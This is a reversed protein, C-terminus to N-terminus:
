LGGLTPAVPLFLNNRYIHIFCQFSVLIEYLFHEVCIKGGTSKGGWLTFVGKSWSYALFIPFILPFSLSPTLSKAAFSKWATTTILVYITTQQRCNQNTAGHINPSFHHTFHLRTELGKESNNGRFQEFSFM